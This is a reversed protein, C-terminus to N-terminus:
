KKKESGIHLNNAVTLSYQELTIDSTNPVAMVVIEATTAKHLKVAESFIYREAAATFVGSYDQIYFYNSSERKPYKLYTYPEGEWLIISGVACVLPFGVIAILNEIIIIKWIPKVPKAAKANEGAKPTENGVETM